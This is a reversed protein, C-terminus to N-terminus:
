GGDTRDADTADKYGLQHLIATRAVWLNDDHVWTDMREGLDHNTVMPGVTWAALSDVTDWWSHTTIFGRIADLDGARLHAAGARLADPVQATM